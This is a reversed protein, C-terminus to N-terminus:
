SAPDVLHPNAAHLADVAAQAVPIGHELGGSGLAVLWTPGVFAHVTYSGSLEGDSYMGFGTAGDLAVDDFMSQELASMLDDRDSPRLESTFTSVGGDSGGEVIWQCLRVDDAEQLTGQAIPGLRGETQDRDAEGPEWPVATPAFVDRVLPLPVLAECEPFVLATEAPPTTAAPTPAVPTASAVVSSSADPTPAPTAAACGTLIAAAAAITTVATVPRSM